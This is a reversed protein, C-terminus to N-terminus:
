RRRPRRALEAAVDAPSQVYRALLEDHGFDGLDRGIRRLAEHIDAMTAPRHEPKRDLMRHVLAALADPVDRRLRALPQPREDHAKHYIASPSGTFPPLTSILEYAVAGLSYIDHAMTGAKGDMQEPSMYAWTGMVTGDITRRIDDTVIRGLGFDLVKVEGRGTLMLNEPKVDRHIVNKEHAHQLGSSIQLLLLVVIEIPLTPHRKMWHRLDRGDILEMEIFYREEILGTNWVKIINRHDLGILLEAEGFFRDIFEENTALAPRLIKVAVRRDLNRDTAEFVEGQGGSDSILRELTYRGFRCPTVFM